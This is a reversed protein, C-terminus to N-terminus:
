RKFLGMIGKKQKQESDQVNEHRINVQSDKWFKREGGSKGRGLISYVLNFFYVCISTRSSDDAIGFDDKKVMLLGVINGANVMLINNIELTEHHGLEYNKNAVASGLGLIESIGEENCLPKGSQILNDGVKRMGRLFLEFSFLEDTPDTLLIMAGSASDRLSEPFQQMPQNQVPQQQPYQNDEMM